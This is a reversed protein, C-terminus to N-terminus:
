IEEHSPNYFDAPALTDVVKLMAEPEILISGIVIQEAELNQPPLKLENKKAM